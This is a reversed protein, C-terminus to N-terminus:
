NNKLNNKFEEYEEWNLAVLWEELEDLDQTNTPNAHVTVVISKEIAFGVRKTGPKSIIYMPAIYDEIGEPTTISLKGSLLFFPFSWKHIAGVIFWDKPLTMQRIYIDKAFSHKYELIDHRLVNGNNTICNENDANEFCFDELIQIKQKYSLSVNNDWFQKIENNSM